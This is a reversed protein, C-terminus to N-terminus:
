PGFGRWWRATHAACTGFRTGDPSITMGRVPDGHEDEGQMKKATLDWYRVKSDAGGSALHPTKPHWLLCQVVDGHGPLKFLEKSTLTDWIHIPGSKKPTGTGTALQKGDPSFAVAPVPGEHGELTHRIITKDSEVDWLRAAKDPGATALVKEVPSFAVALVGGPHTDTETWLLKGTAADWLKVTGDSGGTALRKGDPSVALATVGSPHANLTRAPTPTAPKGKGSSDELAKHHKRADEVKWIRVTGDASATTFRPQGPIFAAATIPKLHARYAFLEVTRQDTPFVVVGGSQFALLAHKVDGDLVFATAPDTQLSFMGAQRPAQGFTIGAVVSLAVVSWRFM